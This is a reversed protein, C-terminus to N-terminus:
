FLFLLSFPQFSVCYNLPSSLSLSFSFLPLSLRICFTLYLPYFTFLPTSLIFLLIYLSPPSLLFSPTIFPNLRLSTSINFLSSLPQFSLIICISLSLTPFPSFLSNYFSELLSLYFPYFTFPTSLVFLLVSLLPPSFPSFLSYYVCAPPALFFPTSLVFLLVYIYIYIYIYISLSLSLSLTLSSPSFLSYNVSVPLSLYFSYFTLSRSFHCFFTFFSDIFFPLTPSSLILLSISLPFSSFNLIFLSFSM